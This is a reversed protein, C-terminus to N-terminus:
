INGRELLEDIAIKRRVFARWYRESLRGDKMRVLGNYAQVTLKYDHWREHKDRLVRLAMDTQTGIDYFGETVGYSAFEDPMIQYLGREGHTGGEHQHFGSELWALAILDDREFPGDPFYRPLEADIEVLAREIVPVTTPLGDQQLRRHILLAEKLYQEKGIPRRRLGYGHAPICLLIATLAAIKTRTV